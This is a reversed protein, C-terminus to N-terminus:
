SSLSSCGDDDKAGGVHGADDNRQSCTERLTRSRRTACCSAGAIAKLYSNLSSETAVAVIAKCAASCCSTGPLKSSRDSLDETVTTCADATASM